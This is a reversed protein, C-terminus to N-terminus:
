VNKVNPLSVDLLGVEYWWNTGKSQSLRSCDVMPVTQIWVPCHGDVVPCDLDLSPVFWWGCLCDLDLYLLLVSMVSLGSWSQICAGSWASLGSPFNVCAVSGLANEGLCSMLIWICAYAPGLCPVPLWDCPSDQDLYQRSLFLWSVPMRGCLGAISGVILRVFM